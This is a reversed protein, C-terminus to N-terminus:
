DYLQITVPVRVMQPTTLQTVKEDYPLVPESSGVTSYCTMWGPLGEM